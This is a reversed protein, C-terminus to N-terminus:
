QFHKNEAMTPMFAFFIQTIIIDYFNGKHLRLLAVKSVM